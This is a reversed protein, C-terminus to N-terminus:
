AFLQAKKVEDLTVGFFAQHVNFPAEKGHKKKVYDGDAQMLYTNVNDKLNYVLINIVQQQLTPDKIMFLAEIRRDFSRVMIDASGVYVRPSGQNHFYYIRVHELFDGIVSHVTINESLGPKSPILCCISRVILRIPVGVQSAQYLEDIVAEDELSNVKLVIGAPLGKQANQAEQRIMANLQERMNLPATILNEYSTPLSHGTIVNFFESVDHAYVEDTTMLSIDTYLKATDENYNGSSLHVYSTVQKQERRVIMLLKAHTKVHSMGYIVFCGAKELKQAEQMNHEEDFRAKLEVLVAVYKGNEVARLLAATIASDQALRYITMKIALVYPDEAAKELLDIVLDMNNYPHHLLIDQHKLAEFIDGSREAPYTLPPITAPQVSRKDEFNSHHVVQLLGTFDILSQKPVSFVNNKDIDWRRKLLKIMWSDYGAEIEVRVVRGTKRRKLKRKLEELFNVEIDDSEEISFDGNRTIRFLTASLITINKFLLGLHTRVIEEIPVFCINNGHNIEYFRPLNQPLQIFSLKKSGKGEIPNHTVVGFVLVKNVLTPFVHHSDFVMPTLMPFLAKKFYRQLYEQEQPSLQTLDNIITCGEKELLPLLKQLYYHHQRKVFAKAETLLKYRFPVERLGFNDIRKRKYDIYNYLSGIRIVFFEDLNSASIALFNLREFVTKAPKKVQDLVRENFKLWSLDRSIYRGRGRLYTTSAAISFYRRSPENM